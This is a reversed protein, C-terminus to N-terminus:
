ARISKSLQHRTAAGQADERHPNRAASSGNHADHLKARLAVSDVASAPALSKLSIDELSTARM